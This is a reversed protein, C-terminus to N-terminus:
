PDDPENTVVVTRTEQRNDHMFSIAVARDPQCTSLLATLAGTSNVAEGNFAYIIDNPRIGAASAPSGAAVVDATVGGDLGLPKAASPTVDLTDSLGLWPHTVKQGAIIEDAVRIAENIPAAFTLDQDAAETPDLNLTIGVVRGYQDVLPGGAAPATTMPSTNVAILNDIDAGEPLDVEDDEGSVSGNFVSAGSSNFAGVAMVPNAIKLGAVSGMVPFDLPGDSVAVVGLGSLPDEGILQGAEEQGALFTVSITGAYSSAGSAFLSADTIVYETGQSGSRYLLGAGQQMGNAGVVSLAVVSPSIKDYVTTWDLSSFTGSITATVTPATSIVSKVVTTPRGFAGTVTGVATAALAGVMGAILAVAWTRSPIGPDWRHARSTGPTPAEETGPPVESPHRWLRDEPPLWAFFPGDDDLGYDPDVWVLRVLLDARLDDGGRKM